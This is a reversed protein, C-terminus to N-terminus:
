GTPRRSKDIARLMRRESKKRSHRLSRWLGVPWLTLWLLVRGLWTFPAVIWRVVKM